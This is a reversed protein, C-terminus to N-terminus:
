FAPKFVMLYLIAGLGGVGIATIVNTKQSRLIQVLEADSIRPVGSPRIECAARVRKGFPRAVLWMVLTIAALLGLSLWFWLQSFWGTVVFALWLGTGTVAILSYYMTKSTKASFLLLNEIRARDTENRIAYLVIMSAGHVGTFVIASVIHIFRIWAYPM